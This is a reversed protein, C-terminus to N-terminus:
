ICDFNEQNIKEKASKSLYKKENIFMEPQTNLYSYDEIKVNTKPSKNNFNYYEGVVSNLRSYLTLNGDSDVAEFINGEVKIFEEDSNKLIINNDNLKHFQGQYKELNQPNNLIADRRVQKTESQIDQEVLLPMQKSIISYQRLNEDAYENIQSMTIADDNKLYIGNENIDFNSYFNKYIESNKEREKLIDIYFDSVFDTTLYEFDGTFNANNKTPTVKKIVETIVRKIQSPKFVVYSDDGIGEETNKYVLGEVKAEKNYPTTRVEKIKYITDIVYKKFDVETKNTLKKYFDYLKPAKGDRINEFRELIKNEDYRYDGNEFSEIYEKVRSDSLTKGEFFDGTRAMNRINLFAPIINKEKGRHSYDLRENATQQTGFHIANEKTKSLDFDEINSPTGHYVVLPEGNEDVVKSATQPSNQWDGFWAKFEPTRVLNYQEETLNSVKGNPALLEGKDNRSIKTEGKVVDFYMKYLYVAEANDSNKFDELQAVQTQVYERLSVDKPYKDKYTELNTYLADLDQKNTRIYLGGKVKILGQQEYVQEESLNTNLKVFDRDTEEQKVIETKPSLDKEFFTDYVDAFVKTNEVTPTTIFAELSGLFSMLNENIDRGALGVVDIGEGILNDEIGKLIKVTDEQNAQLVDLDYQQIRNIDQLIEFNNIQKAVLPLIIATNTNKAQVIEGDVEMFVEAKKYGQMEQFLQEKNLNKQFNPYELDALNAEFEDETTAALKNIVEKQIIYPNLNVLKGFSNVEDTKELNETFETDIDVDETNKLAELSQKVRQQLNIDNALNAIEYNSYLGSKKLNKPSVNFIGDVYFADILKQVSFNEFGLSINKLDLKQQTTLPEKSENQLSLYNLVTKLKPENNADLEKQSLVINDQFDDSKSALFIDLGQKEGFEKLAEKYLLSENGNDAVVKEIGGNPTRLINCSM